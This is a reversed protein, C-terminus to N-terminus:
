TKQQQYKNLRVTKEGERGSVLLDKNQWINSKEPGPFTSSAITERWASINFKCYM